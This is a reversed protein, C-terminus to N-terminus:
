DKKFSMCKDGYYGTAILHKNICLVFFVRKEQKVSAGGYNHQSVVSLYLTSISEGIM